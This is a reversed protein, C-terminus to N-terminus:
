SYSKVEGGGFIASGTIYLTKDPSGGNGTPSLVKRNDAFGGFISTMSVQVDWDSPVVFSAGGFLCNVKLVNDGSSLKAQTLNYNGGGFMAFVKGGKFNQSQVNFEGGGFVHNDNLFEGSDAVITQGAPAAGSYLAKYIFNIGVGVIILPWLHSINLDLILGLDSALFVLGLIFFIAGLVRSEKKFLLIPGVYLTWGYWSFIYRYFDKTIYGLNSALFILGMVIIVLGTGLAQINKNKM